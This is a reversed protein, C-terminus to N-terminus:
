CLGVTLTRATVLALLHMWFVYPMSRLTPVGTPQPTSPEQTRHRTNDGTNDEPVQKLSRGSPGHSAPSLRRGARSTMPM